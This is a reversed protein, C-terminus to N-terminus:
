WKIDWYFEVAHDADTEIITGNTYAVRKIFVHLTSIESCDPLVFYDTWHWHGPKIECTTTGTYYTDEGWVLEGWVNKAYMAIEVAKVTRSGANNFLKCRFKMQNNSAKEWQGDGNKGESNQLSLSHSYSSPKSGIKELVCLMHSSSYPTDDVKLGCYMCNGASATMPICGMLAVLAMVTALFRKM